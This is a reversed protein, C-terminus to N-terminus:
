VLQQIQIGTVPDVLSIPQRREVAVDPKSSEFERMGVALGSRLPKIRRDGFRTELFRYNKKKAYLSQPIDGCFTRHDAVGSITPTKFLGCNAPCKQRRLLFNESDHVAQSPRSSEFRRITSDFDVAKGSPSAGFSCTVPISIM